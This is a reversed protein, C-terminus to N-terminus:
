KREQNHKKIKRKHLKGSRKLQKEKYYTKCPPPILAKEKSNGTKKGKTEKQAKL